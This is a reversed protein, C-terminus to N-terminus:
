INKNVYAHINGYNCSHIFSEDFLYVITYTNACLGGLIRIIKLDYDNDETVM